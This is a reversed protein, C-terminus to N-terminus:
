FPLTLTAQVGRFDPGPQLFLSAELDNYARARSFASIGSIVRNAVMLAALAPLQQELDDRRSRLSLYERRLEDSQWEWRYQPEDPYMRDVNRTRQQFDNYAELSSYNGVALEFQRDHSGIDTGSYVRAHTFMNKELVYTQRSIGLYVAVIVVEAGLHLQGRGWSGSDVYHHGWGPVVFSRLLAGWQSPTKLSTQVNRKSYNGSERASMQILSGPNGIFDPKGITIDYSLDSISYGQFQAPCTSFGSIIMFVVISVAVPWNYYM